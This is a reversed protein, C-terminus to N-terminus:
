RFKALLEESEAKGWHPQGNGAPQASFNKLAAQALTKAQNKDGGWMKPTYFKVWAQLYLVRPNQPDLQAAKDLYQQAIPGFQPGYTMPNIFVKSRYVMSLVTYLEAKDKNSGNSKLLAEAQKGYTEGEISYPEIRDGDQQLLFGIKANCLATYYFPLWNTKQTMSLQKFRVALKEYDAVTKAQDVQAIAKDLAKDQSMVPLVAALICVFLLMTKKM